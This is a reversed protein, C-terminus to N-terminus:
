PSSRCVSQRGDGDLIRDARLRLPARGGKVASVVIRVAEEASRARVPTVCLSGFGRPLAELCRALHDARHIMVLRGRARLLAAAGRLWQGLDGGEMDHAARRKEDPSVRSRGEFFPPNTVVLDAAREALFAGPRLGERLGFVDAAVAEMRAEFGNLSVNRRALDLMAAEREVLVVRTGLSLRAVMLGVAGTSAGLDVVLEGERAGAAQALVVADMGARHGQRPQLLTVAGDLLRDETVDTGTM